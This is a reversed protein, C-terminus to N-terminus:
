VLYVQVNNAILLEVIKPDARKGTIVIDIKDLSFLSVGGFFGLKCSELIVMVKDAYELMKKEEVFTLVASKTLGSETLGDGGVILFRGQYSIHTEPSVLMNQSKSYQGGLVVLHPYNQTILYTLLPLYNSFVYINSDILYKGMLFPIAGEGVFINDRPQCLEVAKKAILDAEEYDHYDSINPYFGIMGPSKDVIPSLIKEAGNRIKKIKGEADLDIIDRRVTAPSCEAVETLEQVSAFSHEQLYMIIKHQRAKATM